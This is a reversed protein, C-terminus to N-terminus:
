FHQYGDYYVPNAFPVGVMESNGHDSGINYSNVLTATCNVFADAGPHSTIHGVIGGVLSEDGVTDNDETGTVITGSFYCNTFTSGSNCYAVMGGAVARDGWADAVVYVDCLVEVNNLSVTGDAIGILGGARQGAYNNLEVATVSGNTALINSCTLNGSVHGVLGGVRDTTTWKNNNAFSGWQGGGQYKGYPGAWVEYKDLWLNKITANEVNGFFGINWGNTSSSQHIFRYNSIKHGQGDFTGRFPTAETGISGFNINDTSSLDDLDLDVTLYVTTNSYDKGEDNVDNLFDVLDDLDNIYKTSAAASNQRDNFIPIVAFSVAM